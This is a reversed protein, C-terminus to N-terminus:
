ESRSSAMICGDVFPYIVCQIIINIIYTFYQDLVNYQDRGPLWKKQIACLDQFDVNESLKVVRLPVSAIPLRAFTITFISSAPVAVVSSKADITIPHASRDVNYVILPRLLPQKTFYKTKSRVLGLFM